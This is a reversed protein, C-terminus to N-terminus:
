KQVYKDESKPISNSSVELQRTPRFRKIWTILRDSFIENLSTPRHDSRKVDREHKALEAEDTEVIEPFGDDTEEGIRSIIWSEKQEITIKMQFKKMLVHPIYGM